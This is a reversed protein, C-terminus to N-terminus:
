RALMRRLEDREEILDLILAIGAINIGLDRELRRAKKARAVSFFEFSLEADAEDLPAVIGHNILESVWTEDSQCFQCLETLTLVSVIEIENPHKSAKRM